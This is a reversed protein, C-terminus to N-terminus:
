CNFVATFSQNAAIKAKKFLQAFETGDQSYTGSKPQSDKLRIV